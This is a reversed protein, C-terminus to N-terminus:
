IQIKIFYQSLRAAIGVKEPKSQNESEGPVIEHFHEKFIPRGEFVENQGPLKELVLEARELPAEPALAGTSPEAKTVKKKLKIRTPQFSATM